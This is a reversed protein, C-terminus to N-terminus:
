PENLDISAELVKKIRTRCEDFHARTVEDIKRDKHGLVKELREDIDKLHLRALSRADAPYSQGGFLFLFGFSGGDSSRKEGLVITSLKKLHERQLNRRITSCLIADKSDDGAPVCESWIGDTLTRFVESLRLPEAGEECLLEQDQLRGLTDAALCQNLVIRQISLIRENVPFDVSSGFFISEDGWHYWRETALKRLLSPSFHFSKDSLIEEIVFKLADRQKAGKVPTIPDHAGSQAKHDRSVSQGGVFSSVLFAANGWQSLLISYARRVRAWSEGDHVVKGELDKMLDRALAVRERAFQCPDSGLDYTNVYPDNDLFMDEDTSYVLDPNPSRDAIKKLESDEDGDIPKYAYEIAWYDYPGITTTYYDGQKQGRPALNIPNYDMVSGTNGKERTLATNNLEAASLMTSAKFNHRLGLSHGVEHMVVEKIAQGIFEEPVNGAPDTKGSAALALAALGLEARMGTSLQCGLFQGNALRKRLWVQAGNWDAPVAELAATGDSNKREWPLPVPLGFGRKAAMIPSIVEGVAVPSGARPGQGGGGSSSFGAGTLLAYEEKWHRIWSADFVVDGDLMEGTIPNARLCSMAFTSPTTIWRFTCYNIDEPDFTDNLRDTDQWRVEIANRFGVKEFAKNWELIGQEVFPRYEHPVTDEVWWVIRKRPPSLKAKPDSKELRWRNVQRVFNTDTNEIGFDKLASLFHGVRDDAYRPRYGSDPMKVLSYHIVLTIGRHDAVGDDQSAFPFMGGFMGRRYTAEVELELNNPFAKVKYWTTRGRDVSGLGLEAFDSLFISALDILVSQGAPNMSEIDLAMLVSDTYNQEVAKEIPSGKPARYHINRRILQVKDGSRHFVLVWEDGFNLPQGAMAMGRAIAIPALFPQDFQHHKIEAYLHEDKRHLTFLGDLKEAGKTVEAFDRFKKGDHEPRPGQADKLKELISEYDIGAPGQEQAVSGGVGLAFALAASSCLTILRNM